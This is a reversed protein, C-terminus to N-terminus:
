FAFRLDVGVQLANVRLNNTASLKTVGFNYYACPVLVARGIPIEYQVGAKVAVRVATEDDIAGAARTIIARGDNIYTAGPVLTPDFTANLPAILEMRQELTTGMPIGVTPGVVIGFNSEFLNLKYVVEIDLLSYQILATHQVESEVVEGNAPDISPLKDGPVTYAAPLYNYVVRGIISSKSDKPSGLLYEVSLGGYYGNETGSEFDPCLVDGAVSQFGSSHLAKNYGGVPGVYIRPKSKAPILPNALEGQQASAIGAAAILTALFAYTIRRM